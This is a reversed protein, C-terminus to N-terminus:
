EMLKVKQGDELFSVGAVAIIDGGKVGKSIVAYNDRVGGGAEIPTKKVTSTGSEYVFVYSKKGAGHGIAIIPILYSTEQENGSLLLTVEATMGPRIRATDGQITIKVPFANATGAVKSIETVVGKYIKESETPFRIESQLGLFIGEIETEPISIAAEMAGEIFIDFLKQGRAVEFFPEVYKEAIVGDFPARLVTKELDRKALNLQSTTYQVNKRASDYAAQAQDISAQSIAGPDAKAIRKFRDLDKRKDALQVKARGLAAEAGQVNLKYTREDLVALVQDKEVKQGVEVNVKQVNGSVEFSISSKDAAEIVGSFRRARGSARETVTITKIARVRELPPPPEQRCAFLVFVFLSLLSLNAYGKSSLSPIM